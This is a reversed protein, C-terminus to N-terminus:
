DEFMVIAIFDFNEGIGEVRSITAIERAEDALMGIM